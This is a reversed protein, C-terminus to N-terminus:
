LLRTLNNVIIPNARPPPILESETKAELKVIVGVKSLEIVLRALADPISDAILEAIEAISFSM